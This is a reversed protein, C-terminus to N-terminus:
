LPGNKSAALEMPLVIQVCKGYFELVLWYNVESLLKESDTALLSALGNPTPDTEIQNLYNDLEIVEGGDLCKTQPVFWKPGKGSRAWDPNLAKFAFRIDSPFGEVSPEQYSRNEEILNCLHCGTKLAVQFSAANQKWPYYTGYSLKRPSSFIDQCAKCLM